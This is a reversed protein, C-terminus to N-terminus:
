RRSLAVPPLQTFAGSDPGGLLTRGGSELWAHARLTGDEKKAVGLRLTSRHGHRTLLVTAALAQTLCTARPVRASVAAVMRAIREPTRSESARARHPIAAIVRHVLRFPLVTLVVRVLPVVIATEALLSREAKDLRALKDFLTM